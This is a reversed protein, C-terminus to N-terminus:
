NEQSNDLSTLAPRFQTETDAIIKTLEVPSIVYYDEYAGDLHYQLADSGTAHGSMMALIDGLHVAYVLPKYCELAKSPEHHYRIVEQIAEPLKWHKALEFGLEAHHHGSFQVEANLYDSAEGSDIVKVAKEATGELHSSIVFKGIDHLLGATFALEKELEEKAYKAVERSAFATFLDHRWLDGPYSEYGPLGKQFVEGASEAIVMGVIMREGLFSIARDISNIPQLLNFAASNVIRLTKATLAADFKVLQIIDNLSHDPKSNIELLRSANPSLVAIKAIEQHLPHDTKEKM